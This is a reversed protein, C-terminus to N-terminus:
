DNIKMAWLNHHEEVFAWKDGAGEKVGLTKCIAATSLPFSHRIIEIKDGVLRKLRKPQWPHVEGINYIHGMSTTPRSTAFAYAGFNEM